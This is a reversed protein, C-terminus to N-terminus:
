EWYANTCYRLGWKLLFAMDRVTYGKYHDTAVPPTSCWSPQSLSGFSSSHETDASPATDEDVKSVVGDVPTDGFDGFTDFDWVCNTSFTSIWDDHGEAVVYLEWTHTIDPVEPINSVVIDGYIRRLSADYWPDQPGYPSRWIRLIHSYISFTSNSTPSYAAYNTQALYKMWTVDSKHDPNDGGNAGGYKMIGELAGARQMYQCANLVKYREQLSEIYLQSPYGEYTAANTVTVISSAWNSSTVWVYGGTATWSQAYNIVQRYDSTYCNTVPVGVTSPWYSTYNVIWNTSIPNTWCPTRTFSSGYNTSVVWTNTNTTVHMGGDGIELSAWLGTITLMAINSSSGGLTNTNVFYPVLDKIKSDLAIMYDQDPFWGIMNTETEYANTFLNTFAFSPWPYGVAWAHGGTATWGSAYNISPSVSSTYSQIASVGTTSPWYSTYCIKYVAGASLNASSRYAWVYGGTATWSQAYLVSDPVSTTYTNQVVGVGSTSPWYNTYSLVRYAKGNRVQVNTKVLIQILNTPDVAYVPYEDSWNTTVVGENTVVASNSSVGTWTTLCREYTGLLIPIIDVQKVQNRTNDARYISNENTDIGELMKWDYPLSAFEYATANCSSMLLGAIFIYITFRM